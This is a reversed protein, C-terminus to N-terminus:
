ALIHARPEPGGSSAPWLSRQSQAGYLRKLRVRRDNARMGASLLSIRLRAATNVCSCYCSRKRSFKAPHSGEPLHWRCGSGQLCRWLIYQGCLNASAEVGLLPPLNFQLKTEMVNRFTMIKNTEFRKFGTVRMMKTVFGYPKRGALDDASM